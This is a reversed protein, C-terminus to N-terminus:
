TYSFIFDTGEYPSEFSNGIFIFVIYVVMYGRHNNYLLQPMHNRVYAQLLRSVPEKEIKQHTSFPARWSLNVQVHM